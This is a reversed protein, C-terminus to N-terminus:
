KHVGFDGAKGQAGAEARETFPFCRRIQREPKDGPCPQSAENIARLPEQM